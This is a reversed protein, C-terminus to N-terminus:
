STGDMSVRISESISGAGACATAAKAIQEAETLKRHMENLLTKIVTREAEMDM